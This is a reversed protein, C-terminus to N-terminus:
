QKFFFAFNKEFCIAFRSVFLMIGNEVQKIM